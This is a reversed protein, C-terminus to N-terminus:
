EDVDLFQQEKHDGVMIWILRKINEQKDQLEIDDWAGYEYLEEAIKDAKDELQCQIYAKSAIHECANDCHGQLPMLDIDDQYVYFDVYNGSLRIQKLHGTYYFSLYVTKYKMGNKTVFSDQRESYLEVTDYIVKKVRKGDIFCYDHNKVSQALQYSYM